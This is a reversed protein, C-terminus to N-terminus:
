FTLLLADHESVVWAANTVGAAAVPPGGLSADVEVVSADAAPDMVIVRSQDAGIVRGGACALVIPVGIPSPLPRGVKSSWVSVHMLYRDAGFWVAGSCSIAGSPGLPLELDIRHGRSSRVTMQEEVWWLEEGVVVFHSASGVTVALGLGGSLTVRSATRTDGQFLWVADKAGVLRNSTDAFLSFMQRGTSPELGLVEGSRTGVTLMEDCGAIAIVDAVEATALVKGEYPDHGILGEETARWILDGAAAAARTSVQFSMVEPTM